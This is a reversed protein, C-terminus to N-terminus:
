TAPYQQQEVKPTFDRDNSITMPSYDEQLIQIIENQFMEPYQSYSKVVQKSAQLIENPSVYGPAIKEFFRQVNAAIGTYSTQSFDVGSGLLVKLVVHAVWAATPLEVTKKKISKPSVKPDDIFRFMDDSSAFNKTFTIAFNTKPDTILNIMNNHLLNYNLENYFIIKPSDNNTSPSNIKQEESIMADRRMKINILGLVFDLFETVSLNFFFVRNSSTRTVFSVKKLGNFLTLQIYTKHSIHIKREFDKASVMEQMDTIMAILTNTELKSFFFYRDNEFNKRRVLSIKPYTSDYLLICLQTNAASDSAVEIEVPIDSINGALPVSIEHITEVTCTKNVNKPKTKDSKECESQAIVNLEKSNKEGFELSEDRKSSKGPTAADCEQDNKRKRGRKNGETKKSKPESKPKRKKKGKGEDIKDDTEVDIGVDRCIESM